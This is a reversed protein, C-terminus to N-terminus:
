VFGTRVILPTPLSPMVGDNAWSCAGALCDSLDDTSVDGHKDPQISIGRQIRKFRLSKLEAILLSSEGGDDYLFIEPDPEYVMMLRLNQYIKQKVGHNYSLRKTNIGHSQLLQLSQVSHYDDYSVVM